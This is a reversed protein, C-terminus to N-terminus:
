LSRRRSVGALGLGALLMLAVSAPEPVVVAFDDVRNTGGTSTPASTAVLRFYVNSQDNLATINQLNAEFVLAPNFTGSSFSTTGVTYSLATTYTVNDTSWRLDFDAPGTSSRTQAWSVQVGGVGSTNTQFQYYDGIAWENSSLSEFSGNGVPNSWDTAASAHSGSATGSGEEAVIGSITASNNLLPVSTEFTWKAQTILAANTVHALIALVAISGLFRTLMRCNM